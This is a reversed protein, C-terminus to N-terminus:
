PLIGMQDGSWQTLGLAKPSIVTNNWCLYGLNLHKYSHGTLHAIVALCLFQTMDYIQTWLRAPYIFIKYCSSTLTHPLTVEEMHSEEEMKIAVSGESEEYDSEESEENETDM